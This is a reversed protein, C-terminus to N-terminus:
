QRDRPRSRAAGPDDPQRALARVRQGKVSDGHGERGTEHDGPPDVEGGKPGCVGDPVADLDVAPRRVQHVPQILLVLHEAVRLRHLQRRALVQAAVDPVHDLRALPRNPRHHVQHAFRLEDPARVVRM